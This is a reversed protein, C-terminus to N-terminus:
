TKLERIIQSTKILIASTVEELSQDPKMINLDFILM